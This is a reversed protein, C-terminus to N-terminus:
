LVHSFHPVAALEAPQCECIVVCFFILSWLQPLASSIDQCTLFRKGVFVQAAPQERQIELLSTYGHQQMHWTMLTHCLLTCSQLSLTNPITAVGSPLWSTCM